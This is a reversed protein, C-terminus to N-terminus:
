GAAPIDRAREGRAIWMSTLVDGTVNPVTRMMDLLRDVGLILAIGEGPVGVMNLVM